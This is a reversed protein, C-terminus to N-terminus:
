IVFVKAKQKFTEATNLLISIELHITIIIGYNGSLQQLFFFCSAM